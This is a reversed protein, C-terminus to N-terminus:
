RIPWSARPLMRYRSLCRPRAVPRVAPTLSSPASFEVAAASKWTDTCKLSTPTGAVAHRTDPRSRHAHGATNVVIAASVNPCLGAEGVPDGDALHHEM